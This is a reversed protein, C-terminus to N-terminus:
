DKAFTTTISIYLKVLTTLLKQFLGEYLKIYSIIYYLLINLRKNKFKSIYTINVFM